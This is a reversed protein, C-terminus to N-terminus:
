KEKVSVAHYPLITSSSATPASGANVFAGDELYVHALKKGRQNEGESSAEVKKGQVLKRNFESAEKGYYQVAKQPDVTEPTDVGLYRIRDGNELDITDGDLVHSVTFFQPQGRLAFQIPFGLLFSLILVTGFTSERM